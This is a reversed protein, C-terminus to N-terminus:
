LVSRDTEKRKSKKSPHLEMEAHFRQAERNNNEASGKKRGGFGTKACVLGRGIPTGFFSEDIEVEV